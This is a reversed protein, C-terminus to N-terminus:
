PGSSRTQIGTPALSTEAGCRGSRSQPGGLRRDELGSLLAAPAHFQRSVELGGYIKM